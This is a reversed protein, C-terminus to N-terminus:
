VVSRVRGETKIDDVRAPGVSTLGIGIVRANVSTTVPRVEFLIVTVFPETLLNVPEPFVYLISITGTANPVATLTFKASPAATSPTPFRLLNDWCNEIM